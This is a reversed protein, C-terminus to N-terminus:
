LQQESLFICEMEEEEKKLLNHETPHNKSRKM